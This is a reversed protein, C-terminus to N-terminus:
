NLFFYLLLLILFFFFKCCILGICPSYTAESSGRMKIQYDLQSDCDKLTPQAACKPHSHYWGVLILNNKIMSRQIDLEVKHRDHKTNRCPFAHTISLALFFFIRIISARSEPSFYLHKSHSNIDWAGGLYGVVENQTLHCHFDMLLVSSTTISVLFPQIKNLSAFSVTEVLTNADHSLNRNTITNHPHVLRKIPTPPRIIKKETEGDGCEESINGFDKLVM